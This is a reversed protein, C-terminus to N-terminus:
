AAGGSNRLVIVAADETDRGWDHLITDALGQADRRLQEHYSTIDIGDRIGDTFLIVSEASELALQQCSLKTYGGGVIGPTSWGRLVADGVLMAKTNGVGAYTITGAQRDIVAVGMAVGRTSRLAADCAAFVEPLPQSLHQAVCDQAVKAAAAAGPGNGLGNTVCLTARAGDRWYGAQAGCDRGERFPRRAIGVQM